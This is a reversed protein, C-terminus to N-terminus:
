ECIVPKLLDLNNDIFMKNHPGSSFMPGCLNEFDFLYYKGIKYPFFDKSIEKTTALIFTVQKTLGNFTLKYHYEQPYDTENPINYSFEVLQSESINVLRAIAQRNAGTEEESAIKFCGKEALKDFQLSLIKCQNEAKNAAQETQGEKNQKPILSTCAIMM